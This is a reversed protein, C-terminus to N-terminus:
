KENLEKITDGIMAGVGCVLLLYLIIIVILVGFSIIGLYGGHIEFTDSIHLVGETWTM